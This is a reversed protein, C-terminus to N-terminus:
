HTTQPTEATAENKDAAAAPAMADRASSQLQEWCKGSLQTALAMLRSAEELYQQTAKQAFDVHLGFAAAPDSCKMLAESREVHERWRSNAFSAVEENMEAMAKMMTNGTLTAMAAYDITPVAASPAAADPQDTSSSPTEATSRPVAQSAKLMDTRIVGSKFAETHAAPSTTRAM